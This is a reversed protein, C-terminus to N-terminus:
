SIAKAKEIEMNCNKVINAMVFREQLFSNLMMQHDVTWSGLTEFKRQVADSFTKLQSNLDGSILNSGSGLENFFILNIDDDLRFQLDPNDTRVRKLELLLKEVLLSLTLEM